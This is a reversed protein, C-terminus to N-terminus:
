KGKGTMTQATRFRLTIITQKVPSSPPNVAFICLYRADHKAHSLHEM